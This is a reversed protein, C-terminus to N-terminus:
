GTVWTTFPAIASANWRRARSKRFIEIAPSGEHSFTGRFPVNNQLGDVDRMVLSFERVPRWTLSFASALERMGQQLDTVAFAV